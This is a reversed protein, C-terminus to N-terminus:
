MLSPAAETLRNDAEPALVAPMPSLAAETPRLDAEPRPMVIRTHSLVAAEALRIVAEPLLTTQMIPTVAVRLPPDAAEKPLIVPRAM